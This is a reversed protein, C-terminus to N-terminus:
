FLRPTDLGSKTLGSYRVLTTGLIHTIKVLTNKLARSSNTLRIEINDGAVLTIRLSDGSKSWMWLMNLM